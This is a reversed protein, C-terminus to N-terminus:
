LQKRLQDLLNLKGDLEKSLELVTKRDVMMQITAKAQKWQHHVPCPNEDGCQPFGLVCNSLFETGDVASIIDHLTIQDPPRSFEFGGTSGKHSELIRERTLQQFIKGLFHYPINLTESVDRLLTPASAPRTALFLAAQIAYECSKSFILSM